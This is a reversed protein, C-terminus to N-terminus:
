HFGMPLACETELSLTTRSLQECRTPMQKASMKINAMFMPLLSPATGCNNHAEELCGDQSFSTQSSTTCTMLDYFEPSTCWEQAPETGPPPSTRSAVVETGGGAGIAYRIGLTRFNFAGPPHTTLSGVVGSVNLIVM